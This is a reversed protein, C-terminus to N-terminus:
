AIQAGFRDLNVVGVPRPGLGEGRREASSFTRNDDGIGRRRRGRAGVTQDVRRRAAHVIM